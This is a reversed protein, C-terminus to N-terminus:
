KVAVANQTKFIFYILVSKQKSINLVQFDYKCAVGKGAFQIGFSELRLIFM